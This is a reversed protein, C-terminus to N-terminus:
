HKFREPSGSLGSSGAPNSGAPLSGRVASPQAEAGGFVSNLAAATRASREAAKTPITRGAGNRNEQHVEFVGAYSNAISQELVEVPDQGQEKMRELKRRILEGGHDTLPKRIKKRMEVFALWLHVPVLHALPAYNTKEERTNTTPPQLIPDPEQLNAEPNHDLNNKPVQKTIELNRPRGGRKGNERSAYSASRMVKIERSARRNILGCKHKIFFLNIVSDVIKREDPSVARCIRYTLEIDSPLCKETAYIHDLLMTYAGVEAMSLHATDRIFDGVYRRYYNM